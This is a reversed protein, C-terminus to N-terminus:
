QSFYKITSHYPASSDNHSFRFCIRHTKEVRRFDRIFNVSVIGFISQNVAIGHRFLATLIRFLDKFGQHGHPVASFVINKHHGDIFIEIQFFGGFRYLFLGNLHDTLLLKQPKGTINM